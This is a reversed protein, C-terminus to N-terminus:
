QGKIQTISLVSRANQESSLPVTYAGSQLTRVPFMKACMPLTDMGYIYEVQVSRVESLRRKNINLIQGLHLEAGRPAVAGGGPELRIDLSTNM